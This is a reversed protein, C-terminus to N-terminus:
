QTRVSGESGTGAAADPGVPNVSILPLGLDRIRALLGHLQAQDRICGSLVCTGDDTHTITLGDFWDCWTQDIQCAVRIQYYHAM